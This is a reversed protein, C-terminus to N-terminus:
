CVVLRFFLKLGVDNWEGPDYVSSNHSFIYGGVSAAWAKKKHNKELQTPSSPGLIRPALSELAQKRFVKDAGKVNERHRRREKQKGLEGKTILDLNRGSLLQTELERISVDSINVM